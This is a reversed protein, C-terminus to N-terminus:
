QYLTTQEWGQLFHIKVEPHPKTKELLYTMAADLNEAGRPLPELPKDLSISFDDWHVPYITKVGTQTVLEDYFRDKNEGLRDLGPTCLFLADAKLGKLEDAKYQGGHLMATGQPHAIHITFTGGERYDFMSVPQSFPAEITGMMGTLNAVWPLDVHMSPVMTVTFKGYHMPKFPELVVIQNSSLGEGRSIMATSESGVVQAGTQLAIYASDMAHDYHSHYVFIASLRDLELRKLYKRVLDRNTEIKRFPLETAPGPRTFFGDILLNTEGDSFVLSTTGLFTAKVQGAKWAPPAAQPDTFYARYTELSPRELLHSCGALIVLVLLFLLFRRKL